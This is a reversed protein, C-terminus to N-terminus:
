PLVAKLSAWQSSWLCHVSVTICSIRDSCWSVNKVTFFLLKPYTSQANFYITCPPQPTERRPYTWFGEEFLFVKVSKKKKEVVWIRQFELLCVLKPWTLGPCLDLSVCKSYIQRVKKRLRLLSLCLGNGTVLVPLVPLIILSCPQVEDCYLLWSCRTWDNLGGREAWVVWYCGKPYTSQFFKESPLWGNMVNWGLSEWLM